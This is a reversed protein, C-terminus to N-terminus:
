RSSCMTERGAGGGAGGARGVREGAGGTALVAIAFPKALPPLTVAVTRLLPVGGAGGAFRGAPLLGTGGGFGLSLPYAPPPAVAGFDLLALSLPPLM